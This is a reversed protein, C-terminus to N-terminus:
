RIGEVLESKEHVLKILSRLFFKRNLEQNIVHGWCLQLLEQVSFVLKIMKEPSSVECDILRILVREHFSPDFDVAKENDKLFERLIEDWSVFNEINNLRDLACYVHKFFLRVLHNLLCPLGREGEKAEEIGELFPSYSARAGRLGRSLKISFAWKDKDVNFLDRFSCSALSKLL